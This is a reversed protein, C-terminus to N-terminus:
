VVFKIELHINTFGVFCGHVANVREEDRGWSKRVGRGNTPGCCVDEGRERGRERERERM